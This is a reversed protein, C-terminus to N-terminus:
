IGGPEARTQEKKHQKNANAQELTHVYKRVANKSM